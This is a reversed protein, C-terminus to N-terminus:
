AYHYSTISVQPMSLGLLLGSFGYMNGLAMQSEIAIEIWQNLMAARDEPASCTLITVAVLLKLCLTRFATIMLMYRSIRVAFWLPHQQVEGAFRRTIAPRTPAYVIRNGLHSRRAARLTESVSTVRQRNRETRRSCRSRRASPARGVNQGLERRVFHGANGSNEYGATQQRNGSAPDDAPISFEMLKMVSRLLIFSIVQFNDPDFMSCCRSEVPPFIATSVPNTPTKDEDILEVSSTDDTEQDSTEKREPPDFTIEVPLSPDQCGSFSHRKEPSPKKPYKKANRRRPFTSFQAANEDATEPQDSEPKQGELDSEEAPQDTPTAPVNSADASHQAAGTDTVLSSDESLDELCPYIQSPIRSPKAPAAPSEAQGGQPANISPDSPARSLKRRDVSLPRPLSHTSFAPSSYDAQMRLPSRPAESMM